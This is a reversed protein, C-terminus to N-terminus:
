RMRTAIGLKNQFHDPDIVWIPTGEPLPRDCRDQWLQNGYRVEWRGQVYEWPGWGITISTYTGDTNLVTETVFPGLEQHWKGILFSRLDLPQVVAITSLVLNAM